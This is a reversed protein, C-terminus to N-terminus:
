KIIESIASLRMSMSWDCEHDIRVFPSVVRWLRRVLRMVERDIDILGVAQADAVVHIHYPAHSDVLVTLHDGFDFVKIMRISM